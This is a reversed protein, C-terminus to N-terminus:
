PLPAPSGSPAPPYIYEKIIRGGGFVEDGIVIGAALSVVGVGVVGVKVLLARRNIPPLRGFLSKYSESPVAQISPLISEYDNAQLANECMQILWAQAMAESSEGLTDAVAYAAFSDSPPCDQMLQLGRIDVLETLDHSASLWLAIQTTPVQVTKSSPLAATVAGTRLALQESLFVIFAQAMQLALNFREQWKSLHVPGADEGRSTRLEAHLLLTAYSVAEAPSPSRSDPLILRAWALPVEEQPGRTLM